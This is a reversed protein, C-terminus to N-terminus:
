GSRARVGALWAASSHDDPAFRLGDDSSTRSTEYSSRCKPSRGALAALLSHVDVDFSIRVVGSQRTRLDVM